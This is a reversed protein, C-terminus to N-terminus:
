RIAPLLAPNEPGTPGTGEAEDSSSPPLMACGRVRAAEDIAAFKALLGETRANDTIAGIGIPITAIVLAPYLYSYTSILGLPLLSDTVADHYTWSAGLDRLADQLEACNMDQYNTNAPPAPPVTECGGVLFVLLVACALQRLLPPQGASPRSAVYRM